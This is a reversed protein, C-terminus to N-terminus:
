LEKVKDLESKLIGVRGGREVRKLKGWKIYNGITWRSVGCYDAAEKQNFLKDSEAKKTALLAKLESIEAKMEEMARFINDFSSKPITVTDEAAPTEIRKSM